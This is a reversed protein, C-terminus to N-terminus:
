SRVEVAEPLESKAPARVEGTNPDYVFDTRYIQPALPGTVMSRKLAYRGHAIHRLYGAVHLHKIYQKATEYSVGIEDTSAAVQLDRPSFDRIMQMTRWM